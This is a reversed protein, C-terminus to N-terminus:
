GKEVQQNIFQVIKNARLVISHLGSHEISYEKISAYLEVDNKLRHIAEALVGVDLPNVRISNKENLIDDNFSGISSIVPVGMALAEVIANSCGEKQTPLVFIDAAAYYASLLIHSVTGKYVIGKCVPDDVDGHLPAGVFIVKIHEDALKDIAKALIGCGKRHVFGGVFLILFDDHAVNLEKRLQDNRPMPHFLSTDAANPLVIIDDDIALGYDLCKRKNETSVSIVGKVADVLKEKEQSSLSELLEELANDGEGCAVFLPKKNNVAYDKLKNANHWFHGYLIEPNIEKVCSNLTKKNYREAIRYLWEKGNGFSLQNPRFVKYRNGNPTENTQRKPLLKAKRLLAKIPNQPAVVSVQMGLDALAIVLQEVFVYVPRGESPFDSALICLRNQMEIM